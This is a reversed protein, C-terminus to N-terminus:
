EAQNLANIALVGILLVLDIVLLLGCVRGIWALVTATTRDMLADALLYFGMVVTFAALLVALSSLLVVLVRRPIV